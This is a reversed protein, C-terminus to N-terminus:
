RKVRLTDSPLIQGPIPLLAWQSMVFPVNGFSSKINNIPVLLHAKRMKTSNLPLTSPRFFDTINHSFHKKTNFTSSKVTDLMSFSLKQGELHEQVSVLGKTKAASEPCTSSSMMAVGRCVKHRWAPFM